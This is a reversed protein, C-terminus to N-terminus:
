LLARPSNCLLGCLEHHCHPMNRQSYGEAVLARFGDFIQNHALHECFFRAVFRLLSTNDLLLCILLPAHFWWYIKFMDVEAMQQNFMLGCKMPIRTLFTTFHSFKIHMCLFLWNLITPWSPQDDIGCKTRWSHLLILVDNMKLLVLCM